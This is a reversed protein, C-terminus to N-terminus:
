FITWTFINEFQSLHRKSYSKTQDKATKKVVWNAICPSGIKGFIHASIRYNEIPDTSFKRWVFRLVDQDKTPVFIQHHIEKIYGM